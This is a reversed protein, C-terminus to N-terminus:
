RHQIRHIYVEKSWRKDEPTDWWRFEETFTTDVNYTMNEVVAIKRTADKWRTEGLLLVGTPSVLKMLSDIHRQVEEETRLQYITDAGIVIDFTMDPIRDIVIIGGAANARANLSIFFPYEEYTDHVYVSKAGLLKATIAVMGLGGQVNLVHKESMDVGCLTKALPVTAEWLYKWSDSPTTYARDLPYYLRVPRECLPVALPTPDYPYEQNLLM